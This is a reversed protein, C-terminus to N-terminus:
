KYPTHEESDNGVKLPLNQGMHIQATRADAIALAHSHHKTADVDPLIINLHYALSGERRRSAAVSGTDRGQACRGEVPTCESAQVHRGGTVKSVAVFGGVLSPTALM